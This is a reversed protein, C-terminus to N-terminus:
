VLGGNIDINSGTIYKNKNLLFDVIDIIDQTEGFRGLPIQKIINNKHELNYSNGMGENIYGPSLTNILINNRSNELAISRTLGYLASKSSTYNSAGFSGTKGVVSSMCIINGGNNKRMNNLVPHLVNHISLFNTNICDYWDEYSMKHFVSNKFIGANIICNDIKIDSITDKIICNIDKCTIDKKIHLINSDKIDNESRSISIVKHNKELLFRCISNGIGRSTGTILTTVVM